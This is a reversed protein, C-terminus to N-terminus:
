FLNKVSEKLRIANRIRPTKWVQFRSLFFRRNEKKEYPEFVEQKIIKQYIQVRVLFDATELDM